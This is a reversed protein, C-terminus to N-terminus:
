RLESSYGRVDLEAVYTDGGGYEYPLVEDDRGPGYCTLSGREVESADDRRRFRLYGRERLRRMLGVMIVAVLCYLLTASVIGVKVEYSLNDVNPYGDTASSAMAFATTDNLVPRYYDIRNVDTCRSPIEHSDHGCYFTGNGCSTM